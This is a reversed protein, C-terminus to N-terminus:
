LPLATIFDDLVTNFAQPQEFYASHGADAITALRSNPVMAQVAGIQAPTFLIDQAGVIFLTPVAAAALAAPSWPPMTGRVTRVNVSNFSALQLYLLVSEPDRAQILPGLVREVQSLARNASATARLDSAIPEPAQIGALSDAIVLGRVREPYRCAFAASTGGGMSQGILVARDIALADVLALLDDVFRSRGEGEADISGGFARHDFIIVRFSRSFHPVQRFWSVRNGGVGHAFILAPGDGYSDYRIRSEGLELFPM